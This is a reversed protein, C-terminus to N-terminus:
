AIRHARLFCARFFQDDGVLRSIRAQNCERQSRQTVGAACAIIEIRRGIREFLRQGQELGPLVEVIDMVGQQVDGAGADGASLLIPRPFGQCRGDFQDARHARGVAAVERQIGAGVQGCGLM